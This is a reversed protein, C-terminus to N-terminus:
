KIDESGEEEGLDIMGEGVTVGTGEVTPVPALRVSM